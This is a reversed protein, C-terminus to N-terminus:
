KAKAADKFEQYFTAINTDYKNKRYDSGNYRSAIATWNKAILAAKINTNCFGVLADLHERESICMATVFDRASAKGCAVFSEGMIQFKGWSCAMLAAEKDLAYASALKLYQWSFLGYHKGDDIAVNKDDRHTGAEYPTTASLEPHSADYRNNTFASFKHREYLITPRNWKDFAGLGLAALKGSEQKGIAMLVEAECGILKAAKDWDERTIKQGTYGRMGTEIVDIQPGLPATVRKHQLTDKQKSAPAHPHLAAKMLKMDHPMGLVGQHRFNGPGGTGAPSRLDAVLRAAWGRVLGSIEDWEHELPNM